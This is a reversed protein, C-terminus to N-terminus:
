AETDLISGVEKNLEDAVKVVKASAEVQVAAQKLGIISEVVDVNEDVPARAIESARQNAQSIGSKLGDLGTRAISDISSM